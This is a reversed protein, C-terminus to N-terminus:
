AVGELFREGIPEVKGTAVGVQSFWATAVGGRKAVGVNLGAGSLTWRRTATKTARVGGYGRGSRIRGGIPESNCSGRGSGCVVGGKAVGVAM